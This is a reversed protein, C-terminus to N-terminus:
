VSRNLLCDKVFVRLRRDAAAEAALQEASPQPRACAPPPAAPAPVSPALQEALDLLDARGRSRAKRQRSFTNISKM